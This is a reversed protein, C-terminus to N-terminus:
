SKGLIWLLSLGRLCMIMGTWGLEPNSSGIVLSSLNMEENRRQQCINKMCYIRTITNGRMERTRGVEGGM